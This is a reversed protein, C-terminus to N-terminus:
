VVWQWVFYFMPLAVLLSDARDLVGGHGPLLQSSDKLNAQRKLLSEFLDGFISFLGIATFVLATSLFSTQLAPQLISLGILAILFALLGGGYVGEWTKGPSVHHALKHRGFRRGSFYAGTDIAWIVFLSLLVIGASYESVFFLLVSGFNMIVLLGLLLIILRNRIQFHGARRQYLVVTMAMILMVLLTLLMFVGSSGVFKVGVFVLTAVVASYLVRPIIKESGTFGFWEWASIFSVGLAFLLWAQDNNAWLLGAVLLFLLSATIVRQMLM